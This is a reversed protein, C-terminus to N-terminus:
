EHRQVSAFSAMEGETTAPSDERQANWHEGAPRGNTSM